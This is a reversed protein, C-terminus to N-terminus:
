FGPPLPVVCYVRAIFNDACSGRNYVSLFVWATSTPNGYKEQTVHFYSFELETGRPICYRQVTGNMLNLGKGDTIALRGTDTWPRGPDAEELIQCPYADGLGCCSFNDRRRLEAFWEALAVSDSGSWDHASAPAVILALAGGHLFHRRSIM